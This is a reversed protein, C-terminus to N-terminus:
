AAQVPIFDVDGPHLDSKQLLETDCLIHLDCLQVIKMDLLLSGLRGKGTAPSRDTERGFRSLRIM